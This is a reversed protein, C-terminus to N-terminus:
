DDDGTHAGFAEAAIAARKNSPRRAKNAPTKSKEEVPKEAPKEVPKAAPALGRAKADADSLLLQTKNGGITVDYRKM